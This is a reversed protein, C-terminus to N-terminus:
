AGRPEARDYRLPPRYKPCQKHAHTAQPMGQCFALAGQGAPPQLAAVVAQHFPTSKIWGSISWDHEAESSEDSLPQVSPDMVPTAPPLTDGGVDAIAQSLLARGISEVPKESNLVICATLAKSLAREIDARHKLVYAKASTSGKSPLM